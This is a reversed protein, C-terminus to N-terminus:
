RRRSTKREASIIKLTTATLGGAIAVAGLGVSLPALDAPTSALATVLFLLLIFWAQLNLVMLGVLHIQRRLTEDFIDDSLYVMMLLAYLLWPLILFYDIFIAKNINFFYGTANQRYILATALLGLALLIRREERQFEDQHPGPSM